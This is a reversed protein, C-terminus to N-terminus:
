EKSGKEEGTAVLAALGGARPCPPSVLARGFLLEAMCVKRECGGCNMVVVYWERNNWKESKEPEGGEAGM